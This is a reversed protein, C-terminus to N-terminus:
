KGGKVCNIIFNIVRYIWNCWINNVPIIVDENTADVFSWAEALKESHPYVFQGDANWNRGWSNQCLWGEENYGCIMIAHYGYDSTKDFKIIDGKEFTYKDYWKISALVPGYNILAHKIDKATKCSAYSAIKFSKAEAYIEETLKNKLEETCKPQETNGGISHETADGYEKVIKCADRLYMGGELRGLAVGQMGYIFNTSLPIFKGTEKKNFTELIAATAHAVCSSVSRQNKVPPLDECMYFDPLESAGAAVRYDRTDVKPKLAGLFHKM